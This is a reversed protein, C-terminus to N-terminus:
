KSSPAGCRAIRDVVADLMQNLGGDYKHGCQARIDLVENRVLESYRGESLKRTTEEKYTPFGKQGPIFSKFRHASRGGYSGTKKHDDHLLAVAPLENKHAHQISQAPIHHSEYGACEERTVDIHYGGLQQIGTEGDELELDNRLTEIEFIDRCRTKMTEDGGISAIRYAKAAGSQSLPVSIKEGAIVLNLKKEGNPEISISSMRESYGAVGKGTGIGMQNDSYGTVKGTEGNGPHSSEPSVMSTVGDEWIEQEKKLQQIFLDLKQSAESQIQIIGALATEAKLLSNQAPSGHKDWLEQVRVQLRRAEDRITVARRMEEEAEQMAMQAQEATEQKSSSDKEDEERAKELTSSAHEHKSRANEYARQARVRREELEDMLSNRKQACREFPEVMQEHKKRVNFQVQTFENGFAEVREVDVHVHAM